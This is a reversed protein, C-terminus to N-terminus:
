RYYSRLGDLLGDLIPARNRELARFFDADHRFSDLPPMKVNSMDAARTLRGEPMDPILEFPEEGRARARDAHKLAAQPDARVAELSEIVGRWRMADPGGALSISGGRGAQPIPEMAEAQAARMLATRGFRANGGVLVLRVNRETSEILNRYPDKSRNDVVLVDAEFGQKLRGVRTGWGLADAPNVTVM